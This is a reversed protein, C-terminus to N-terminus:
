WYQGLSSVRGCIVSTGMKNMLPNFSSITGHTVEWRELHFIIQVAFSKIYGRVENVHHGNCALLYM